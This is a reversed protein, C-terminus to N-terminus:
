SSSQTVRSRVLGKVIRHLEEKVHPDLPEPKHERLIRRAEERAAARLDKSGAKEWTGRSKRDTITPAYVEKTYHTLTHAQTLFSGGPGVDEIVDVALTADDVEIGRLIRRVRGCIENDIVAQEYSATSTSGLSGVAHYVFNVGSLAITLLGMAKELGAQADAIKSDSCITGRSPLDYYRALQASAANMLCTEAGGISPCGTRQDMFTTTCGFVVPAGPNALQAIVVEGLIEANQQVLAGALTVPATAGGQPWPVIIQPQNYRAYTILGEANERSYQLPSVPQTIGLLIPMKKLEEEGNTVVSAMRITDYSVAEGENYGDQSKTTNEFGALLAYLHSVSDPVDTPWVACGAHDINELADALVFFRELDRVTSARCTGDELDLLKVPSGTM